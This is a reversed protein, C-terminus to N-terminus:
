SAVRTPWPQARELQLALSLLLGDRGTASAFQVGIPLGDASTGLPLSIAPAGSTNQVPTFGAYTRLRDRSQEFPADVALYGHLPPPAALTPCIVVDLSRFIAEYTERYRSLRRISRAVTVPSRKFMRAMGQTFPELASNDFGRHLMLKSTASQVWALFYWYRLFDDLIEGPYPSPIEEVAHGLSECLKAADLVAKRNDDHVPTGTPADVFVAMRLRPPEPKVVGIPAVKRPPRATELADYFAVTDRVTRTVVGDTAINVPLLNSGVMDLRFRSPKLGVLGCCSSPIRISGGGDSAHAIPVVGAAVLAAAGGSSGGPSHDPNHPNKCPSRLMPETTATLGLEPTASKGLSVLGMEALRDVIPDSRKSVFYGSARSGWTTRVNEVQVLDKIFTPVGALPGTPRARRARDFTKTVIAGEPEAAEARDIAAELVEERSVRKTRIAEATEVADWEGLEHM